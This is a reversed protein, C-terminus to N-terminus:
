LCSGGLIKCFSGLCTTFMPLDSCKLVDNWVGFPSATSGLTQTWVLPTDDNPVWRDKELYYAQPQSAKPWSHFCRHCKVRWLQPKPIKVWGRCLAMAWFSLRGWNHCGVVQMDRLQTLCLSWSFDWLCITRPQVNPCARALICLLWGGAGCPHLSDSVNVPSVQRHLGIGRCTDHQQQSWNLPLLQYCFTVFLQWEPGM